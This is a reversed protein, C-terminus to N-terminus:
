QEVATIDELHSQFNSVYILYIQRLFHCFIAATPNSVTDEIPIQNPKQYRFSLLKQLLGRTDKLTLHFERERGNELIM